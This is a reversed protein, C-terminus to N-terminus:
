GYIIQVIRNIQQAYTNDQSFSFRNSQFTIHNFNRVDAIVSKFLLPLLFSNNREAVMQILNPMDKYTAINNAMIVKGTVLYEVVKKYNTGKSQDKQIDYCILLADM